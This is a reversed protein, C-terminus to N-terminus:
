RKLAEFVESIGLALEMNIDRLEKDKGQVLQRFEKFQKTIVKCMAQMSADDINAKFVKCGTCMEVKELFKGQIEDRCHTGSFLWCKLDESKYAPCDRKKCAFAVWCQVKKINNSRTGAM